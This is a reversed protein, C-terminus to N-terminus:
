TKELTIFINETGTKATNKESDILSLLELGSEETLYLQELGDYSLLDYEILYFLYGKLLENEVSTVQNQINCLIEFYDSGNICSHLIPEVFRAHLPPSEM